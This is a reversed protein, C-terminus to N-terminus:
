KKALDLTFVVRPSPTYGTSSCKILILSIRPKIGLVVFSYFHYKIDECQFITDFGPFQGSPRCSHNGVSILLGPEVLIRGVRETVINCPYGHDCCRTLPHPTMNKYKM